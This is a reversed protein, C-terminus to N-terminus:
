FFTKVKAKVLKLIAEAEKIKLLLSVLFYFVAAFLSAFLTQFFIGPVTNTSNLTLAYLNLLFYTFASMLFTALLIKKLSPFIDRLHLIASKRELYFSLLLFQFIVSVSLALPLGVVSIDNIGKLKLLSSVLSRFSNEFGLLWVFLYSLAINLGMSFVAIKVPTKTDQFSFYVRALFPVTTSAFLSLSFVGLSAATLRTQGWGFYGEGLLSTGLILRVIQARLLFVLASLPIILFLIKSFVSSFNNLFQRREGQAFTKSLFPFAAQAFSVGIIGAPVAQLNNAFNFVSIAGASLTSAISTIVILNLQYAASGLTRPLSLKIIKLLGPQRFNFCFRPAFGTKLLPYLQILLHLLAGLIVGLALGKLGFIPALFLIGAIIGLNYFIPALSTALFLNFYRLISSFIASIGLFIPSFFMIRTLLITQSKQFETFGPAILKVLFPTFVALALSVLSLFFLFFTLVSDALRKAEAKSEKFSESFVPLFAAIIGGMILIGYIFDPIRFSAFYIDTLEKPFLNALLNDRLMGLLRSFLAALSLLFAAFTITKAKSNLVKKIM